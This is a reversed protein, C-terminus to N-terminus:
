ALTAFCFVSRGGQSRPGIGEAAHTFFMKQRKREEAPLFNCKRCSKIMESVLLVQPM